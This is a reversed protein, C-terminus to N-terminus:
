EKYDYAQYGNQKILAYKEASKLDERMMEEVLEEFSIEPTWGLKEKAKAPNGLLTEVEAPRFYRPDVRVIVRGKQDSGTEDVGEGQWNMEIGVQKAAINVFDRVSYQEGTAIVFDEPEQQQLM